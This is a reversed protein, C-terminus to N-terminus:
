ELRQKKTKSEEAEAAEEVVEQSDLVDIPCLASEEAMEEALQKRQHHSFMPLLSTFQSDSLRSARLQYDAEFSSAQGPSEPSDAPKRPSDKKEPSGVLVPSGPVQDKGIDKKGEGDKSAMGDENAKGLPNLFAEPNDEAKTDYGPNKDKTSGDDKPIDGSTMSAGPALLRSEGTDSGGLREGGTAGSATWSRYTTNEKTSM